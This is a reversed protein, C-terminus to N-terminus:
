ASRVSPGNVNREPSCDAQYRSARWVVKSPAPALSTPSATAATSGAAVVATPPRVMPASGTASAVAILRGGNRAKEIRATGLSWPVPPLITPGTVGPSRTTTTSSVVVLPEAM